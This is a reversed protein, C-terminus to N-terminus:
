NCFLIVEPTMCPKNPANLVHKQKGRMMNENRNPVDASTSSDAEM